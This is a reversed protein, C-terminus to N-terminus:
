PSPCLQIDDGIASGFFFQLLLPLPLPPFILALEAFVDADSEPCRIRAFYKPDTRLIEYRRDIKIANIKLRLLSDSPERAAYIKCSELHWNESPCDNNITNNNNININTLYQSVTLKSGYKQMLDRVADRPFKSAIIYYFDTELFSRNNSSQALVTYADKIIALNSRMKYNSLSRHLKTRLDWSNLRAVKSRTSVAENITTFYPTLEFGNEKCLDLDIFSHSAGPDYLGFSEIDNLKLVIQEM